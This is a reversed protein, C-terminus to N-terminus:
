EIINFRSCSFIKEYLKQRRKTILQCPMLVCYVCVIESFEIKQYISTAIECSHFQFPFNLALNHMTLRQIPHNKLKLTFIQIYIQAEIKYRLVFYLVHGCNGCSMGCVCKSEGGEREGMECGDSLVKKMM